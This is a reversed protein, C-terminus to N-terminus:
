KLLLISRGHSITPGGPRGEFANIHIDLITRARDTCAVHVHAVMAIMMEPRQLPRRLHDVAQYATRLGRARTPPTGEAGFGFQGDAHRAPTHAPIDQAPEAWAGKGAM